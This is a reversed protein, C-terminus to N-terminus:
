PGTLNNKIWKQWFFSFNTANSHVEKFPGDAAWFLLLMTMCDIVVFSLFLWHVGSLAIEKLSFGQIFGFLSFATTILKTTLLFLSPFSVIHNWKATACCIYGFVPRSLNIKEQLRFCTLLFYFVYISSFFKMFKVVKSSNKSSPLKFRWCQQRWVWLWNISCTFSSYFPENPLLHSPPVYFHLM